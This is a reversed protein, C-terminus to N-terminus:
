RCSTAPRTSIPSSSSARRPPRRPTAGAAALGAAYVAQIAQNSTRPDGALAVSNKYEPKLLDAWDQPVNKVIDKNVEFSLVGYYDGYWSGDPM